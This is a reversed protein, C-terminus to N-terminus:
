LGASQGTPKRHPYPVVAEARALMAVSDLAAHPKRLATLEAATLPEVDLQEDAEGTWRARMAADNDLLFAAVYALAAAHKCWDYECGYPCTCEATVHADQAALSVLYPRRGSGQINATFQGPLSQLDVVQGARAYTRGRSLITDRTESVTVSLLTLAAAHTVKGPKAVKVGGEVARRPAAEFWGGRRRQNM